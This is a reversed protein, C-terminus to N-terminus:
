LKALLEDVSGGNWTQVKDGAPDLEVYTHQYTVGYQSALAREEVDTDPDNYNVRIVVVGEPLEGVRKEFEANAPRCTSCWSAYFFLIRRKDANAQLLGSQYPLYASVQQSDPIPSAVITPEATSTNQNSTQSYLYGGGIVFLVLLVALISRVM